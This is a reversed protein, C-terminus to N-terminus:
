PAWCAGPSRRAELEGRGRKGRLGQAQRVSRWARQERGQVKLDLGTGGSSLTSM